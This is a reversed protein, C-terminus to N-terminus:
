VNCVNLYSQWHGATHTCTGDKCPFLIIGNVATKTSRAAVTCTYEVGPKLMNITSFSHPDFDVSFSKKARKNDNHYAKFFKDGSPALNNGRRLRLGGECKVWMDNHETPHSTTMDLTFGYHSAAPVTFKYVLRAVNPGVIGGFPNTREYWMATGVKEWGSGTKSAYQSGKKTVCYKGDVGLPGTTAPLSKPVVPKPEPKPAPPNSKPASPASKPASPKPCAFEGSATLMVGNNGKCKITAAGKPYSNWPYIVGKSADDGNRMFPKVGERRVVTSGELFSASNAGPIRCDVSFGKGSFSQPCFKFGDKLEPGVRGNMGAEIIRLEAASLALLCLAVFLRLASM